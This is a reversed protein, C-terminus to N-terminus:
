FYENCARFTRGVIREGRVRRLAARTLAARLCAMAQPLSELFCLIRRLHLVPELRAGIDVHTPRANLGGRPHGAEAPDDRRLGCHSQTPPSMGGPPDRRRDAPARPYRARRDGHPIPPPRLGFSSPVGRHADSSPRSRFRRFDRGRRSSRAVCGGPLFFGQFPLKSFM